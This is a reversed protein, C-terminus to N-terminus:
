FSTRFIPIKIKCESALIAKEVVIEDLIATLVDIFKPVGEVLALDIRICENPIPLGADCIVIIDSEGLGAIVENLQQNLIGGNKM